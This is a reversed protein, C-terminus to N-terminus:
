SPADSKQITTLRAYTNFNNRKKRMDGGKKRKSTNRGAKPNVHQKSTIEWIHTNGNPCIAVYRGDECERKSVALKLGKITVHGCHKGERLIQSYRKM